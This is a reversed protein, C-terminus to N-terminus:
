DVGWNKDLREELDGDGKGDGRGEEVGFAGEM